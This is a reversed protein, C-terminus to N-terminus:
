KGTATREAHERIEQSYHLLTPSRKLGRENCNVCFGAETDNDPVEEFEVPEPKVSAPGRGGRPAPAEKFQLSQAADSELKDDANATTLYAFVLVTILM